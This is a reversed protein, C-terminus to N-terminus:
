AKRGRFGMNIMKHKKEGRPEGADEIDVLGAREFCQRLYRPTLIARHKWTEGAAGSKAYNLIRGQAALFPDGRHLEEKWAGAPRSTAGTEEWDLMARLMPVANVTHVELVGGAKLLQAWAAITPEVEFWEVHEICHASYVTDFTGADFPPRRADGVHDTFPTKVINLTEFGPLREPGPGIELQRM